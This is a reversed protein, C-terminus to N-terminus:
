GSRGFPTKVSYLLNLFSDISELEWDHTATIFSPNWHIHPSSLDLYDLVLAEKNHALSYFEPFYSKLAGEGCRTDHWFRIRSGDAVKYSVFNSFARWDNKINRWLSVGYPGRRGKFVLGREQDWVEVCDGTEM